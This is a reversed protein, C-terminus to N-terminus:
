ARRRWGRWRRPGRRTSMPSRRECATESRITRTARAPWSCSTAEGPVRWRPTSRRAAIRARDHFEEPGRRSDRRRRRRRDGRFGRRASQRRDRHHSRRARGRHAGDGAAQRSRARRRLRIRLHARWGAGVAPRLAALVKDLADPTHAYDVVVLPQGDGGLRQMRGPPPTVRALSALAADLEIGSALLVGLVGLVNSANFTGSVPPAIDGRGWPTAISLELGSQRRARRADGRYRRQDLGYTLVHQGRARATDALTRGFPDDANIVCAELTPWAFLGAKAAAYAAMTGHYDLHDRTLNTFLAVDFEVRTSAGKSWVMRRSKWRSPRPARRRATPRADRPGGGRRADHAGVSRARRGLGNGLTGLIASKRGCADLCQAIWHTCSTKGNTGTVGVVFLARSPHGYIHDAIAGLKARLDDVAVNSVRWAADWHFSLAEWLVAGAGRAIADPIFARGDSVQGPYAAFADGARVQRSDATIRRPLVACGRSCRRRRCRLRADGGDHRRGSRRLERGAPDRQRRARRAARRAHAAGLGDGDSFVPAAVEGGYHAGASPEDIMVAVILRPASAPAFGVFSSVYKNTYGRGELKHATGTKGAVRYGPVQAKPATGGPQVALELMHRVALATEAQM